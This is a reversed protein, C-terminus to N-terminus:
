CVCMSACTYVYAIRTVPFSHSPFLAWNLSTNTKGGTKINM